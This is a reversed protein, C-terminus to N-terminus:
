AEKRYFSIVSDGHRKERYMNMTAYDPALDFHSSHTVVVTTKDSVAPSNALRTLVQGISKDAYPPDILVLNYDTDMQRLARNVETCHVRAQQELGTHALNEKIIACCKPERDFFDVFGAGRSLAEIGLAGSGSYLDLVKSWDDEPSAAALMDFIAGRVLDTAPRTPTGRPVKLHHGKVQGAIVRM